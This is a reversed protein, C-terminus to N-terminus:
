HANISTYRVLRRRPSQGQQREDSQVTSAASPRPAGTGRHLSQTMSAPRFYWVNQQTVAQHQQQQRWGSCRLPFWKDQQRDPSQKTTLPLLPSPPPQPYSFISFPFNRHSTCHQQDPTFQLSWLLFPRPCCVAAAAECWAKGSCCVLQTLPGGGATVPALALSPSLM